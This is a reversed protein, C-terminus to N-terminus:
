KNRHQLLFMNVQTDERVADTASLYVLLLHAVVAQRFHLCVLSALPVVADAKEALAGFHCM